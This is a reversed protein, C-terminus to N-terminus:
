ESSGSSPQDPRFNPDPEEEMPMPWMLNSMSGMYETAGGDMDEFIDFDAIDFNGIGIPGTEAAPAEHKIKKRVGGDEDAHLDFDGIDFTGIGIPGTETAPGEHKVKKPVDGNEDELDFDGIDFAGIGIPGMEAAAAERRVENTNAPSGKEGPGKEASPDDGAKTNAISGKEEPGEEASPDDGAEEADNPDMANMVADFEAELDADQTEDDGDYADNDHDYLSGNPLAIIAPTDKAPPASDEEEKKVKRKIENNFQRKPKRKEQGDEKRLEKLREHVETLVEQQMAPWYSYHMVIAGRIAMPARLIDDALLKVSSASPKKTRFHGEEWNLVRKNVTITVTEKSEGTPRECLWAWKLSKKGSTKGSAM